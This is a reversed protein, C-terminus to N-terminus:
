DYPFTLEIVTSKAGKMLPVKALTKRVMNIHINGWLRIDRKMFEKYDIEGRLYRKLNDQNSVNFATHVFHWSSEIDVLVGDMDFVVIKLQNKM